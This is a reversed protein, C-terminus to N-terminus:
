FREDSTLVAVRDLAAMYGSSCMLEEWGLPPTQPLLALRREESQERTQWQGSQAAQLLGDLLGDLVSGDGLSQNCLLVMDCGASLAAVAAQTPSLQEGRLVRAAAMSLDDSFIAGAFGLQGRLIGLLWRSSFGAPCDDVKPYIV